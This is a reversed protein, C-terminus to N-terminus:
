VKIHPQKQLAVYGRNWNPTILVENMCVHAPLRAVYLIQDDVDTSQVM